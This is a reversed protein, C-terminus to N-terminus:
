VESPAVSRKTLLGKTAKCTRMAFINQRMTKESKEWRFHKKFSPKAIEGLIPATASTILGIPLKKGRQRRKTRKRLRRRRGVLYWVGKKCITKRENWYTRTTKMSLTRETDSLESM